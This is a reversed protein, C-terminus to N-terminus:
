RARTCSWGFCNWSNLNVLIGRPSFVDASAKAATAEVDSRFRLLTMGTSNISFGLMLSSLSSCAKGMCTTAPQSSADSSLGLRPQSESHISGMLLKMDLLFTRESLHSASAARKTRTSSFSKLHRNDSGKIVQTSFSAARLTMFSTWPPEHPFLEPPLARAM